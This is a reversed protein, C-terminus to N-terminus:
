RTTANVKEKNFFIFLSTFYCFLVIGYHRSLYNETLNILLFQFFIFIGFLSYKIKKFIMFLYFLFTLIFFVGGYLLLYFYYNHTNFTSIKYFDSDNNKAYCNNLEKQLSDGYGWFPMEKTLIVDCKYIALRTNTSNYYNGVIPKNIENKIEYFRNLVFSSKLFFLFIVVPIIGIIFLSKKSGVKLFLSYSLYFLLTLILLIIIIRSSFLIIFFFSFIINLFNIYISEKFKFLSITISLLLYSSFYTPHIEFYYNNTVFERFFPINEKSINFLTSIANTKLFTVFFFLTQLVVSIQFVKFSKDRIKTDIFNPKLLFLLPFVLFPLNLLITKSNFTQSILEYILFLFFPILYLLINQNIKIKNKTKFLHFLTLLMCLIIIMSNHNPKLLPLAALSIFALKTFKEIRKNM